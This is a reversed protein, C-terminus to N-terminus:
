CHLEKLEFYNWHVMCDRKINKNAMKFLHANSKYTVLKGDSLKEFRIQYISVKKEIRHTADKKYKAFYPKQNKGNGKTVLPDLNTWVLIQYYYKTRFEPVKKTVKEDYCYTKVNNKYVTKYNDKKIVTGDDKIKTNTHSYEKHSPVKEIKETCIERGTKEYIENYGYIERKTRLVTAGPPLIWDERTILRNEQPYVQREWLTDFIKVRESKVSSLTYYWGGLSALMLILVGIILYKKTNTSQNTNKSTTQQPESSFDNSSPSSNPKRQKMTSSSFNTDVVEPNYSPQKPAGTVEEVDEEHISKVRGVKSPDVQNDEYVTSM